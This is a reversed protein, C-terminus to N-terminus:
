HDHKESNEEIDTIVKLQPHSNEQTEQSVQSVTKTLTSPIMAPPNSRPWNTHATKTTLTLTLTQNLHNTSTDIKQTLMQAQFMLPNMVEILRATPPQHHPETVTTLTITTLTM